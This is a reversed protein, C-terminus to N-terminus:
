NCLQLPGSAGRNRARESQEVDAVVLFEAQRLSLSVVVWPREEALGGLLGNFCVAAGEDGGDGGGKDGTTFYWPSARRWKRGERKRIRRSGLPPVNPPGHCRGHRNKFDDLREFERRVLHGAEHISRRTLNPRDGVLVELEGFLFVIGARRVPLALGNFVGSRDNVGILPDFQRALKVNV